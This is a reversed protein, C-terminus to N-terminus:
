LDYDLHRKVRKRQNRIRRYKQNGENQHNSVNSKSSEGNTVVKTNLIDNKTDNQQTPNIDTENDSIMEDKVILESSETKPADNNM